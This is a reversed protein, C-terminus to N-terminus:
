SQSQAEGTTIIVLTDGVRVKGKLEPNKEIVDKVGYEDNFKIAFVVAKQNEQSFEWRLRTTFFDGIQLDVDRSYGQSEWNQNYFEGIKEPEDKSLFSQYQAKAVNPDGTIAGVRKQTAESLVLPQAGNYQPVNVPNTISAVTATPEAKKAITAASTATAPVGTPVATATKSAATTPTSAPTSTAVAVTTPIGTATASASTTTAPQSTSINDGCAALLLALLVTLGLAIQSLRRAHFKLSIM